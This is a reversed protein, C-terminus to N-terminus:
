RAACLGPLLGISSIRTSSRCYDIVHEVAALDATGPAFGTLNAADRMLSAVPGRDARLPFIRQEDCLAYTRCPHSIDMERGNRRLSIRFYNLSDEAVNWIAFINM